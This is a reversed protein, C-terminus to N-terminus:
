SISYTNQVIALQRKNLPDFKAKFVLDLMEPDDGYRKWLEIVQLKGKLYALDKNYTLVRPSGDESQRPLETPTGRFVRVASGYSNRQARAIMDVSPEKSSKALMLVRTRWLTEYTQRFDRGEYAFAIALPKETSLPEWSENEESIAAETFLGTGLVPLDTQSGSISRGGHVIYEHLVKGLMETPNSIPSRRGAIKVAMLKTEWSLATASPDMVVDVGSKNEPDRLAHVSTFVNFMDDPMFVRKGEPRKQIIDDWYSQVLDVIDANDAYLKEKLATLLEQPIRALKGSETRQLADIKIQEGAVE